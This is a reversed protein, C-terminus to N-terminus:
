PRGRRALRHMIRVASWGVLEGALYAAVMYFVIRTAETAETM